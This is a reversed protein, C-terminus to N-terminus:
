NYEYPYTKRHFNWMKYISVKVSDAIGKAHSDDMDKHMFLGSEPARTLENVYLDYGDANKAISIDVRVFEEMSIPSTQRGKELKM